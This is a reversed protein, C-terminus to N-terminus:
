LPRLPCNTSQQLVLFARLTSAAECFRRRTFSPAITMVIERPLQHGAGAWFSVLVSRDDIAQNLIFLSM